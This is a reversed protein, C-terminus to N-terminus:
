AVAGRPRWILGGGICHQGGQTLSCPWAIPGVHHHLTSATCKREACETAMVISKAGEPLENYAMGVAALADILQNM